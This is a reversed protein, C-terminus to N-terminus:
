GALPRDKDRQYLGQNISEVGDTQYNAPIGPAAEQFPRGGVHFTLLIQQWAAIHALIDKVSWGDDPRATMQAESLRGLTQELATYERRARELLEAKSRPSDSEIPAPQNEMHM